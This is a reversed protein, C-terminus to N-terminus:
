RTPPPASSYPSVPSPEDRPPPTSQRLANDAESAARKAEQERAIRAYAEYPQGSAKMWARTAQPEGLRASEDIRALTGRVGECSLAVGSPSAAGSVSSWREALAVSEARIAVVRDLSWGVRRGIGAGVQALMVSDSRDSLTAAVADCSQRRNADALTATSCAQAFRQLPAPFATTIGAARIALAQAAVLDSASTGAHAVISAAPTLARDEFRAASGIRYLAEDTLARDNRAAAEDLVFMWPAANGADIRAWQAAGIRACSGQEPFRTCLRFALAYVRPDATTVAQQALPEVAALNGPGAGNPDLMTAVARDFADDSNRLAAVLADVSAELGPVQALVAPDPFSGDASAEVWGLGCVEVLAPDREGSPTVIPPSAEVAATAANVRPTAIVVAPSTPSEDRAVTLWAVGGLGALVLATLAVVIPRSGYPPALRSSQLDV